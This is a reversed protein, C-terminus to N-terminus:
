SITLKNGCYKCFKFNTSINKGCNPCFIKYIKRKEEDKKRKNRNNYNNDVTKETDNDISFDSSQKDDDLYKALSPPLEDDATRYRMVLIKDGDIHTAMDVIISNKFLVYKLGWYISTDGKKAFEQGMEKAIDETKIRVIGDDNNEIQKKIWPIIPSIAIKYKGYREGKDRGKVDRDPVIIIPGKIREPKAIEAPKASAINGIIGDETEIAFYSSPYGFEYLIDTCLKLISKASLKTDVYIDTNRIKLPTSIDEPNYSFYIRSRGTVNLINDFEDKHVSYMIDIIGTLLDKWTETPYRTNMFYFSYITKKIPDYNVLIDSRTSSSTKSFIRISKAPIISEITGITKKRENFIKVANEISRGSNVNDKSLIDIFKSSVTKTDQQLIDIEYFKKNKRGGEARPLYFRWHIGNTLIALEIDATFSYALLQGEHRENLREKVKKAEIFVKNSDRIRLAYDVEMGRLGYELAVEEPNHQDWGLLYLFKNIIASKTNEENYTLINKNQKINDIFLEINKQM